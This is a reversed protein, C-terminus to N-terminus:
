NEDDEVNKRRKQSSKTNKARDALKEAAIKGAYNRKNIEKYLQTCCLSRLPLAFATVAFSVVGLVVSQAITYSKLTYPINANAMLENFDNLPLLRIYQEVPYSFIGTINGTEFGWCILGPVFWYTAIFLVILLLATKWFNFKVHNVSSKIADFAGKDEELAFVQFSLSLYVFAIVLLGWLVPISLVLYILSILLMFLIYSGSRRKILEAHMGTDELKGGELLTSAMSNLSAMAILYEWFAKCFIFFGPLTLLALILFILPINDFVPSKTTLTSVNLTFIYSATFILAVGIIQGFVPFAMYKFFKEFNLFYLKLGNVFIKMVGTFINNSDKKAM